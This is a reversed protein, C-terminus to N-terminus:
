WRKWFGAYEVINEEVINEKLEDNM